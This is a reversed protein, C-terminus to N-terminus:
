ATKHFKERLRLADIQKQLIEVASKPLTDFESQANERDVLYAKRREFAEIVQKAYVGSESVEFGEVPMYKVDELGCWGEFSGTGEVISELCSLTVEKPIKKDDFHGTNLIYCATGRKEFMTRFKTFDDKLPYTRFPNAYPEIVLANPDAGNALREATSRKTALTAGLTAALQSDEIKLMPPMCPDKMLWIIADISEGFRNVRNPAWFKSKIARGNGNRIDETVLVCKGDEDRTAGCNQATVLYKNDECGMPYDQTKDFYSPELAVSTGDETSIVFADDHLVKVAYKDNHKYHTLTSKGSGSLGFIGAVFQRGDDLTYRKQGGHCSAFDNRNAIGWALTLTGKKHEGFYKMGLLCACNKEPDFLTLGLPHDANKWDPDSFIFIEGEGDFREAGCYMKEIEETLPQFNMMWNYLINEHGAPVLLNAKVMFEESLGVVVQAHYLKKYRSEYVADRALATMTDECVGHQGIIRRAQACRGTVAGDNFLLVKADSPLGLEMSRYVPMDTVITGPSAAALTYAEGITNVKVVNNGFFATEVTVRLRSQKISAKASM